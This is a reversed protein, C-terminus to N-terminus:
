NKNRTNEKTMKNEIIMTRFNLAILIIGLILIGICLPRSFMYTFLTKGEAASITLSLRFNKEILQSLILGLV